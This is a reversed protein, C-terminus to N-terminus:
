HENEVQSQWMVYTCLYMCVCMRVYTRVYTYASFVCIPKSTAHLYDVATEVETEGEIIDSVMESLYTCCCTHMLQMVFM